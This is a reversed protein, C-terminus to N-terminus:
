AWVLELVIKVYEGNTEDNQKSVRFGKAVLGDTMAKLMPEGDEKPIDMFPNASRSKLEARKDSVRGFIKIAEVSPESPRGPRTRKRGFLVALFGARSRNEEWEKLKLPYNEVQACATKEPVGIDAEFGDLVAKNISRRAELFGGVIENAEVIHDTARYVISMYEKEEAKFRYVQFIVGKFDTEV